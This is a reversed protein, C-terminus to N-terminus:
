WTYGSTTNTLNYLIDCDYPVPDGGGGGDFGYESEIEFNFSAPQNSAPSFTMYGDYDRDAQNSQPSHTGFTRDDPDDDEFYYDALQSYMSIAGTGFMESMPNHRYELEWANTFDYESIASSTWRINEFAIRYVKNSSNRSYYVYGHYPTFWRDAGSTSECTIAYAVISTGCILSFILISVTLLLFKKRHM